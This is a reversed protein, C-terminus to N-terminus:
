VYKRQPNTKIMVTLDLKNPASRSTMITKVQGTYMLQTHKPFIINARKIATSIVRRNASRRASFITHSAPRETM